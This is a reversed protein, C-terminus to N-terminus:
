DGGLFQFVQIRKNQFDSVYVRDKQDIYISSPLWFKGIDKGLSGVSMLMEFNQNFVQFNNFESDLVYVNDESDIAVGKPKRFQGPGTGMEGIVAVFNLDVDFVQVRFNMFDTVYLKGISDVALHIPYNFLGPETGRGGIKAIYEGQLNYIHIVHGHTDSVYLRNNESDVAIGTPRQFKDGKPGNLFLFPTGDPRYGYVAGADADTVFINDDKDLAVGIPNALQARGKEGLYFVEGNDRDIVFVLKYGSDAVILRNKSDVAIGHPQLFSKYKLSPDEGLLKDKFSSGKDLYQREGYISEIYKYRAKEPPLPWVFGDGDSNSVVSKSTKAGCGVILVLTAALSLLIAVKRLM